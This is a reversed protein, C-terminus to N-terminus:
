VKRILHTSKDRRARSGLSVQDKGGKLRREFEAMSGARRRAKVGRVGAEVVMEEM